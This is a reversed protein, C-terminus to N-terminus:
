ITMVQPTLQIEYKRLFRERWENVYKRNFNEEEGSRFESLILQYVRLALTAALQVVRPLHQLERLPSIEVRGTGFFVNKWIDTGHTVGSLVSYIYTYEKLRGLEDAISRISAAGYVKYWPEDFGKQSYNATFKANVTDFPSKSLLADIQASECKVEKLDEPTIKLGATVNFHKAFEPTGGIVSNDWERRRRLNAVYLHQIKAETDKALAWEILHAGELLSRLQLDATRCNGTALLVSVGDLHTLFQRLQVFLVCIAKLHRNSSAFARVVLNTGYNLLENVLDIADQFNAAMAIAGHRDLLHKHADDLKILPIDM